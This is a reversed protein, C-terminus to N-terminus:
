FGIAPRIRPATVSFAHRDGPYCFSACELVRGDQGYAIRDLVLIADGPEIELTAAIAADAKVARITHGAGKVAIGAKQEWVASTTEVSWGATRLVDAHQRAGLRLYIHLLAAPRHNLRYLRRVLLVQHPPEIGLLTRVKAPPDATGFSLLEARPHGGDTPVTEAMSRPRSLEEGVSGRVFTGVGHRRVAWGDRELLGICRRVTLRSLKSQEVLEQETPLRCGSVYDGSTIAAKLHDALQIYPPTSISRDIKFM